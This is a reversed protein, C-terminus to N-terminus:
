SHPSNLHDSVEMALMDLAARFFTLRQEVNEMDKQLQRLTAITIILRRATWLAVTLALLISTTLAISNAPTGFSLIDPAITLVSM